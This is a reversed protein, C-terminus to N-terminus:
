EMCYSKQLNLGGYAKPLCMTEWAVLSKKSEDLRGTWLFKRCAADVQKLVAKPLCFIQAWYKQIGGIVSSILEVRGAYSLFKAYWTLIRATISAVLSSCDIPSLKKAHLPVGLYRFPFTGETMGTLALIDCKLGDFVGSCYFCSKAPNATLGSVASFTNFAQFLPSVSTVDGNCFLLIDEAFLLQTLKLKKCRPHYRFLPIIPLRLLLRSLYEM